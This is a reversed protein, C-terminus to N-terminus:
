LEGHAEGEEDGCGACGLWVGGGAGCRPNREGGDLEFRIRDGLRLAFAAM